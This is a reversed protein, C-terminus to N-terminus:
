HEHQCDAFSNRGGPALGTKPKQPHDRDREGAQSDSDNFQRKPDSDSPGFCRLGTQGIAQLYYLGVGRRCSGARRGHCRFSSLQTWAAARASGQCFDFFSGVRLQFLGQCSRHQFSTVHTRLNSLLRIQKLSFSPRTFRPDLSPCTDLASHFLPSSTDSKLHRGDFKAPLPLSSFRIYITKVLECLEGFYIPKSDFTSELKALS